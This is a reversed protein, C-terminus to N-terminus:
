SEEYFLSKNFKSPLQATLYFHFLSQKNSNIKKKEKGEAKPLKGTKIKLLNSGFGTIVYLMKPFKQDYKAIM